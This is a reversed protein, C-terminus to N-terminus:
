CEGYKFNKFAILITRILSKGAMTFQHISVLNKCIRFSNRYEGIAAYHRCLANLHYRKKKPHKSFVNDFASLMYEYFIIHKRHTDQYYGKTTMRQYGHNEYVNVLSEPVYDVAWTQTFRAGFEFDAVIGHLQWGGSKIFAERRFMFTPTGSVAPKEVTEDGVYGRLKCAHERIFKHTTNDYYTMWCYVMGYEEPLSEILKVQKEIKSPLYEDDSDLFTIYKGKSLKVGYNITEIIPWNSELKVFNLRNDCFSAIVEDTNDTSAGDVVIHEINTYTQTLVSDICRKLLAGRNRTITIISVLPKNM